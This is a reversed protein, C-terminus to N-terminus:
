RLRADAAAAHQGVRSPIYQRRSGKGIPTPVSGDMSEQFGSASLFFLRNSSKILSLPALIGIDDAIKDFSFIVDSGAQYTMPRTISDQLLIGSMEGGAVTKCAGGDYFDQFDSSNVGATWGTCNGRASWQIRNYNSVLGTLVVFDNVVSIYRALPPSGALDAFFVSSTLDFVQVADAAEV